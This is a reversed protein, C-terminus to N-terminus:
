LPIEVTVQTSGGAIHEVRTQGGLAAAREAISRPIFRVPASGDSGDNIIRVILCDNQCALGIQANAAHTHRRINNLGEVVMQFVEAALRDNISLDFAAEIHVAIHTAETYTAVFRRVAALLVSEREGASPLRHVYGRLTGIGQSTIAMLQAIDNSIDDNGAHLKQSVAALGIQFGIYPQIVNDHIDRALRRREEEAASSALQDVLRINEIVPVIQEIVHLLFSVDAPSFARRRAATLYLRGITSHPGQLPVSIFSAADVMAILAENLVPAVATRQSKHLDSLYFSADPFSREWARPAGLYIISQELPPALLLQATEAPLPTADIAREPAGRDARRLVYEDSAPDIVIALCAEADYFARLREMMTGLMRDIGFRPNSLRTIEKLLVLRRKSTIERDGWRAVLYGFVLLYIPPLLMEPLRLDTIRRFNALEKFSSTAVSNEAISSSGGDLPIDGLEKYAGIAVLLIAAVLTLRLAAVFGLRFAAVLVPFLFLFATIADDGVVVLLAAWSIDAWYSLKILLTPIQRGAFLYVLGSYFTFLAAVIHFAGIDELDAPAIIFLVSSSLVLRMMAVLRSDLGGADPSKSFAYARM